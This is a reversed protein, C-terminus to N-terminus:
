FDILQYGYANTAPDTNQRNLPINNSKFLQLIEDRERHLDDNGCMDFIFEDYDVFDNLTATRSNFDGCLLVHKSNLCFRDFERQLELYPDPHKFRSGVPPIYVIGCILDESTKLITKSISFWLVLKSENKMIHIYSSLENRVFLAIGGSRYRSIQKRNKTFLEYGSISVSDIDDLKTEQLGICDYKSLYDVFDPCNLKSRLGCTNLSLINM